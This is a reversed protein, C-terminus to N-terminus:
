KVKMAFMAAEIKGSNKHIKAVRSINSPWNKSSINPVGITTSQLLNHRNNICAHKLPSNKYLNGGM